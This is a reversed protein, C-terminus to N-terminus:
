PDISVVWPSWSTMTWRSILAKDNSTKVNCYFNRWQQQVVSCSTASQSTTIFLDSYQLKSYYQPFQEVICTEVSTEKFHAFNGVNDVVHSSCFLNMFFKDEPPISGLVMQSRDYGAMHQLFLDGLQTIEHVVESKPSPGKKKLNKSSMLGKWHYGQKPSRTVDARSKLALTSLSQMSEWKHLGWIWRQHSVQQSVPRSVISTLMATSGKQDVYRCIHRCANTSTQPEFGHGDIGCAALM